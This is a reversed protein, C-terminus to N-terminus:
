VLFGRGNWITASNEDAMKAANLKGEFRWVRTPRGGARDLLVESLGARLTVELAVPLADVAGAAMTAGVQPLSRRRCAAGLWATAALGGGLM